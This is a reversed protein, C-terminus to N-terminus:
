WQGREPGGGPRQGAAGRGAASPAVQPPVVPSSDTRLTHFSGIRHAVWWRGHAFSRRCCVTGGNRSAKTAQNM